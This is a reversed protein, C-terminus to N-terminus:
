IMNGPSINLEIMETTNTLKKLTNPLCLTYKYIQRAVTAKAKPNFIPAYKIKWVSVDMDQAEVMVIITQYKTAFPYKKILYLSCKRFFKM